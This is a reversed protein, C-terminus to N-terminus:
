TNIRNRAAICQLQCTALYLEGLYNHQAIIDKKTFAALLREFSEMGNRLINQLSVHMTEIIKVPYHWPVGQETLTTALLSELIHYHNGFVAAHFSLDHLVPWVEESPENNTIQDLLNRAGDYIEVMNECCYKVWKSGDGLTSFAHYVETFGGANEINGSFGILFEQLTREINM